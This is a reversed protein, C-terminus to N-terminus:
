QAIIAKEFRLLILSMCVANILLTESKRQMDRGAVPGNKELWSMFNRSPGNKIVWKMQDETMIRTYSLALNNNWQPEYTQASVEVAAVVAELRTQHPDGVRFSQFTPTKLVLKTLITRLGRDLRAAKIFRVATATAEPQPPIAPCGPMADPNLTRAPM